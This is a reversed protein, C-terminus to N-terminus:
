EAEAQALEEVLRVAQKKYTHREQSAVLRAGGLARDQQGSCLWCLVTYWECQDSFGQETSHELRDLTLEAEYPKGTALQCSALYMYASKSADRREALYAQLMDGAEAYDGAKYRTMADVYASNKANRAQGSIMDPYPRFHETCLSDTDVRGACSAFLLPLLLLTRNMDRLLVRHAAAPEGPLPRNM